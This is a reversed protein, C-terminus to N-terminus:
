KKDKGKEKGKEKGKDKGGDKEKSGEVAEETDEGEKKEDEGVVAVDSPLATSAAEEAEDVLRPAAVSVVTQGLKNEDVRVGEPLKIDRVHISNGFEVLPSIDIDIYPVLAAPLAHVSLKEVSVIMTGGLAKVALSEGVFKLQVVAEVEKNLDVALFDIHEVFDTLPNKSFHHILAPVKDGGEIDLEVLSSSGTKRYTKIFQVNDVTVNQPKRGAGYVVAPIKGASRLVRTKGGTIERQQAKLLIKEM